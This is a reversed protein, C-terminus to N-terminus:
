QETVVQELQRLLPVLASKRGHADFYNRLFAAASAYQEEAVLISILHRVYDINAPNLNIAKVAAAIAMERQGLHQRAVSINFYAQDSNPDIAIAREWYGIAEGLHDLQSHAYGMEIYTKLTNRKAAIAKEYLAIAKEYEGLDSHLNGLRRYIEGNFAEDARAQSLIEIQLRESGPRGSLYEALFLYAKAVTLDPNPTTTIGSHKGTNIKWIEISPGSQRLTGSRAIPLYYADIPDYIPQSHKYGEPIFEAVQIGIRQLESRFSPDVSSYGLHHEHLVLYEAKNVLVTALDGSEKTRNHSKVIYDYYQGQATPPKNQRLLSHMQAFGFQNVYQKMKWALDGYTALPVDGAWGGFNGIGTGPPINDEIWRRAEIRTDDTQLIRGFAITDQLSECSLLCIALLLHWGRSLHAIAGSALVIILPVIPLIYRFFILDGYGIAIFYTGTTAILVWVQPHRHLALSAVAAILVIWGVGYRLNHSLHHWWGPDQDGRGTEFHNFELLFRTHFDRWDFVTSPSALSFIIAAAAVAAFLHADHSKRRALLHAACIPALAVIGTIKSATCLGACVGAVLYASLKHEAILKLASWTTLTFWFALPIDVAALISQRCLALSLGSLLLATLAARRGYLADALLFAVVSIGGAFSLTILRAITYLSQTDWLYFSLITADFTASNVTAEAAAGLFFVLGNLYYPLGPYFAASLQDISLSGDLLSLPTYVLYYEDPHAVQRNSLIYLVRVLFSVLVTSVALVAFSNIPRIPTFDTPPINKKM